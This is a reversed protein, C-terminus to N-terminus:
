PLSSFGGTTLAEPKEEARIDPLKGTTNRKRRRKVFDVLL